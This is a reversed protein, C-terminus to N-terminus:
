PTCVKCYYLRKLPNHLLHDILDFLHDFSMGEFRVDTIQKIDGGLYDFPKFTFYGDHNLNVTFVRNKDPKHKGM